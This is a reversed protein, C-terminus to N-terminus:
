DESTTRELPAQLIPPRDFEGEIKNVDLEEFLIAPAIVSASIGSTANYVTPKTGAALLRKLARIEVRPFTLGRVLEEHGDEVFVKYAYIPDGLEGFGGAKMSVVRLAFLLGEDKAAQILEAKLAEASLGNSDSVYLCGITARPQGFGASRGHGTSGTIKETSARAALLTKLIGNEVLSVRRARVGEDDFTYAGALTKGEFTTPGPDDYVNFSRPLIRLGIKKELSRDGRGGSGLPTPRACFGDALLAAFVTGAADPEFLVPGTYHDLVPAESLKILNAALEDIDDLMKEVSPLGDVFMSLYTRSDALRMGDAAQLRAGVQVYAGTDAKRVRTGESNVIWKNVAGAFFSVDSDQVKPFKKFRESLRELNTKWEAEDFAIEPSPEVARVPEAPTFDDPREEDTKQKLYAEKRTLMEVAQKYDNDTMQWMAHRLATMDDDLPLAARGGFGRGVNTNDLTYSGVRVRSTILRFRNDDSRVLGGYSARMTFSLRDQASYEIFYPKPLDDLVLSEMSRELEEVMAKMVTDNDPLAGGGAHATLPMIVVLLVAVASISRALANRKDKRAAPKLGRPKQAKSSDRPATFGAYSFPFQELNRNPM